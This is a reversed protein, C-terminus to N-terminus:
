SRPSRSVGSRRIGRWRHRWRSTRRHRRSTAGAGRSSAWRPRTSRYRRLRDTNAIEHLAELGREPGDCQGIAIARNLAVVPSPALEMMADYLRVIAKWDTLDVSEATAHVAAIAAELHYTSVVPGDTARDLWSLGQQVLGADWRTRDQELFPSLEGAADARAPLRAAHLYMLAALACTDPEAAAPMELLLAGACQFQDARRQGKASPVREFYV